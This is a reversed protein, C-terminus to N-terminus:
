TTPPAPFYGTSTFFEVYKAVLEEDIAPCTVGTGALATDTASTDFAPYFRDSDFVMAEFAALLPHLPNAPDAFIREQWTQWPVEELPYGLTRLYRVFEAYDLSNQNSLHFTQGLSQPQRSLALVAASVYDVAVAHIDGSVGSPVAGAQLLGKLSLWVFDRTQCAGSDRDGSVVDVRYVSVPVGRGRALEIMQEAVWKSQVYGTPLAEPPGTVEDVARPAGTQGPGAFVGVTSVYHVPVTRHRAALRLVEQTGSVNAAKLDSYPRLWHVTAGAHYVVDVTRALADFADPALGLGPQALDGLVIRLRAPDVADWIRYWQMNSRIRELAQGASDARVLCHITATTSRMLDRLLFAGLFGTAGTLFVERPDDTVAATQAAPHIDDDLRVQARLDVGGTSAATAAGADTDGALVQRLYGALAAPTPHDFILTAPLQSGTAKGLRNRLEVSTLSDFGLSSFFQGAGIRDGGPDAHGLVAAASSRVLSLLLEQQAEEDLAALQGALAGAGSPTNAAVRRVPRSLLGTLVRPAQGAHERLMALDMPTVMLEPRGTALAADLLRAGAEQPLPRFGSRAIRKLDAEELHGSMGGEQEWLGWAISTAALDRSARLRALGDLFANAAAYSSQGPGGIVAAASSFLVFATLDQERTLDHLHWAADAKPRLVADVREATQTTVLGDDLVGAAHIIGTLPHAAPIGALLAAVSDRDSLDCAAITVRAGLAELEAALGAAGPAAQGRRSTLLLHRVGHRTVLHRAFLAGLSGTGGTILVTGEGRWAVGAREPKERRGAARHGPSPVLPSLRPVFVQGGRVAVQPERLALVASLRAPSLASDSDVLVIREPAESQASRLLGWV